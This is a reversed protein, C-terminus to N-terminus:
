GHRESAAIATREKISFSGPEAVCNASMIAIDVPFATKMPTSEAMDQGVDETSPRIGLEQLGLRIVELAANYDRYADFGCSPFSHERVWLSKDTECGCQLYRKTTGELLM